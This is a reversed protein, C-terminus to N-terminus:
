PERAYLGEDLASDLARLESASQGLAKAFACIARVESENLEGDARAVRLAAHVFAQSIADQAGTGSRRFPGRDAGQGLSEALARPTVQSFLLSELGDAAGGPSAPAGPAFEEGIKRLAEFEYGNVEGDIRCVSLLAGLFIRTLEDSGLLLM